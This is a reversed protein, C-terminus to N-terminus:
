LSNRMLLPPPLRHLQPNRPLPVHIPLLPPIHQFAEVVLYRRRRRRLTTGALLPDHQDLGALVDTWAVSLGGEIALLALKPLDLLLLPHHFALAQVDLCAVLLPPHACVPELCQPSIRVSM